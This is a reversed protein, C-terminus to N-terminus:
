RYTKEESGTREVDGTETPRSDDKPRLSVFVLYRQKQRVRTSGPSSGKVTRLPNM